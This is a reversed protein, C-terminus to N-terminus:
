KILRAECLDLHDAVDMAEGFDALIALRRVGSLDLDVTQPADAGGVTTELLTRDDGYIVLKVNGQPRVHDDIGVTAQFRQFQGPLRYVIRTRSHLALGKAYQRGDLQLPESALSKDERPAYLDRLLPVTATSGFYPTFEVSEPKLDSLFVIKGRSFDIRAIKELPASAAVGSPTDWQLQESLAISRASWESGAADTIQCIPEPLNGGAPHHYVLGYVKSRKVPLSSGDLEFQVVSETVDGLVGRHYDIADGSGVVLLDTDRKADVIKAWPGALTESQRLLVTAVAATPAEVVQGDSLTIKARGGAVGYQRAVLSSGDVLNVRVTAEPDAAAPKQTTTVSLLQDATLSLRGDATELGLGQVGLEAITGRLSRGDLTQVEVQPAAASLSIAVLLISLM